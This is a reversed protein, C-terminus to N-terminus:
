RIAREEAELRIGEPQQDLELGEGRRVPGVSRDGERPIQPDLCSVNM